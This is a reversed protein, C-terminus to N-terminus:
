VNRDRPGKIRLAEILRSSLARYRGELTSVQERLNEIEVIAMRILEGTSYTNANVNKLRELIDTYDNSSTM